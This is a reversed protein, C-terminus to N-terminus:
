VLVTLRQALRLQKYLHRPVRPNDSTVTKLRSSCFHLLFFVFVCCVSLLLWFVVSCSDLGDPQM